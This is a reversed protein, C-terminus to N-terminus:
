AKSPDVLGPETGQNDPVDMEVYHNGRDSEFGSPNCHVVHAGCRACMFADGSYVHHFGFHVRAGTKECRMEVGCKACVIM